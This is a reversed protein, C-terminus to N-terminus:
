NFKEVYTIYRQRDVTVKNWTDNLILEIKKDIVSQIKKRYAKYAYYDTEAFFNFRNQTATIPNILNFKKIFSNKDENLLIKKFQNIASNSLLINKDNKNSTKTM